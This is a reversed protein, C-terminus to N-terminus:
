IHVNDLQGQYREVGAVFVKGSTPAEDFVVKGERDTPMPGIHQNNKDFLLEVPTRKLPLNSFKMTIQICIM